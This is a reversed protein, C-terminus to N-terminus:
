LLLIKLCKTAHETFFEFKPLFASSVILRHRGRDAQAGIFRRAPRGLNYWWVVKCWRWCPNFWKFLRTVILSDFCVCVNVNEALVLERFHAGGCWSAFILSEKRCTFLPSSDDKEATLIINCHSPQRYKQHSLNWLVKTFVFRRWKQIWNNMLFKVILCM